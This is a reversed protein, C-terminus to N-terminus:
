IVSIHSQLHGDDYRLKLSPLWDPNICEQLGAPKGLNHIFIFLILLCPLSVLSCITM